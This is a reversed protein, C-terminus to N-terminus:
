KYSLREDIIGLLYTFKVEKYYERTDDDLLSGLTVYYDRKKFGKIIEKIKQLEEYNASINVSKRSLFEIDFVDRIEKRELLAKIKNKMMQELTFSKLLVQQNSYPSYAITERFDSEKNEKRIEIKLKRPYPAKKIEFLLTYYKNQADTLDYDTKLSDKLNIFFQDIRDVRYTWFDLDVSYRKLGYCLRLMTGGGFIMNRLFGKNKLWALVEIEFIEQQILDNM